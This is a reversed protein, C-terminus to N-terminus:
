IRLLPLLADNSRTSAIRVRTPLASFGRARRGGAGDTGAFTGLHQRYWSPPDPAKSLREGLAKKHRHLAGSVEPGGVAANPLCIRGERAVPPVRILGRLPKGPHTVHGGFSLNRGIRLRSDFSRLSHTVRLGARVRGSDSPGYSTAVAGPYTSLRGSPPWTDFQSYRRLSQAGSAPCEVVFCCVPRFVVSPVSALNGALVWVLVIRGQFHLASYQRPCVAPAPEEFGQQVIFNRKVGEWM